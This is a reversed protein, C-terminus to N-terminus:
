FLDWTLINLELVVGQPKPNNQNPLLWGACLQVRKSLNYMGGLVAVGENNTGSVWDGMLYFRKNLKMEYGLVLGTDNGQGLFMRNGYYIGGVVRSGKGIHHTILAYNFNNLEKNDLKESLNVGIQIGLNFDWKNAINFQKQLTGMLNPYVSGFRSDSNYALRWEESFYVGKGVLNVGADWGKGLGYVFHGKSEIKESYINFQHQYFVKGEKTIDGSPINFLNQQGFATGFVLLLLYFNFTKM